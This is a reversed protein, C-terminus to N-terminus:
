HPENWFILSGYRGGEYSKVLSMLPEVLREQAGKEKDPCSCLHADLVGRLLTASFEVNQSSSIGELEKYKSELENRLDKSLLTALVALCEQWQLFLLEPSDLCSLLNQVVEDINHDYGTLIMRAANISAACRQHIKGSIVTPPRLIPFSGHFPEVKRVASPDDLDLRAILEGAQM